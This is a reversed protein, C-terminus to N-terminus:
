VTKGHLRALARARGILPLLHKLEPGDERGTLALRLPRVLAEGSRGSAENIADAWEAWSSEDWPEPPLLIAAASAFSEDEIVPEVEDHCVDWWDRADALLGLNPRVAEWFGADAGALGMKALRESVAEYPLMGLLRANVGVLQDLDFVPRAQGIRGSDFGEVLAAMDPCPEVPGGSGIRALLSALAMPEIGEERLARVSLGGSADALAQGASDVLRPLHGIVLRAPDGGLASLVQLRVATQKLREEGVILRNVGLDLDDAALSLGSRAGGDAGLLVPDSLEGPAFRVVGGVLDTWGIAEEDLLFRWHPRRGDAELVRKDTETLRLAARDYVPPEGRKRRAELKLALEEPTEYCAYLRGAMALREIADDYRDQRESRRVVKDPQLGLWELDRELAAALDPNGREGDGDDLALLYAGGSKRAVLWNIVATRADGVHLLGAAGPAFRVRVATGAASM